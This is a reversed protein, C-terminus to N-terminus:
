GVRSVGIPKRTLLGSELIEQALNGQKDTVMTPRFHREFRSEVRFVPTYARYCRVDCLSRSFAGALYIPGVAQPIKTTRHIPLRSFDLYCNVILVRKRSLASPDFALPTPDPCM